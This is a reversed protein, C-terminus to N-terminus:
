TLEMIRASGNASVWIGDIRGLYQPAPLEYYSAPVMAVTFSTASATTGFKVYLIQTSDNFITAQKRSANSALLTVSSASSAVNSLTATAATVQSATISASVVLGHTVPDAYVPVIAGDGLNSEALLGVVNNPDRRARDGAAM